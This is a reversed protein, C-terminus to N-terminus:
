ILSRSAIGCSKLKPLSSPVAYAIAAEHHLAQRQARMASEGRFTNRRRSRKRRKSTTPIRANSSPETGHM